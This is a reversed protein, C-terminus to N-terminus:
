QPWFQSTPVGKQSEFDVGEGGWGGEDRFDKIMCAVAFASLDAYPENMLARCVLHASVGSHAWCYGKGNQDRSPIPQGANGTMRVNSLQANAAKRAAIRTAWESRPILPLTFPKAYVLSGHPDRDFDRPRLGHTGQENPYRPQVHDLYNTDDIVIMQRPM